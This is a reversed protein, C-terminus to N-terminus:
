GGSVAHFFDGFIRGFFYFCSSFFCSCSGVAEDVTAVYLFPPTIPRGNGRLVSVNKTKLLELDQALEERELDQFQYTMIKDMIVEERHAQSGLPIIRVFAPDLYQRIGLM